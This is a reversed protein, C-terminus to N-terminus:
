NREILVSFTPPGSLTFKESATASITVGGDMEVALL